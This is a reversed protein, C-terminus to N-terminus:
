EWVIVAGAPRQSERGAQTPTSYVAPKPPKSGTATAESARNALPPRGPRAFHSPPMPNSQTQKPAPSMRQNHGLDNRQIQKALQPANSSQTQKARNPPTPATTDETPPDIQRLLRLRQLEALTKYLSHELRREYM